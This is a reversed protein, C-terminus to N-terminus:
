HGFIWLWRKCFAFPVTLSVSRNNKCAFRLREHFKSTGSENEEHSEYKESNAQWERGRFNDTQKLWKCQCRNRLMMKHWCCCPYLFLGPLTILVANNESRQTKHSEGEFLCRRRLQWRTDENAAANACWGDQKGSLLGHYTTTGVGKEDGQKAANAAKPVMHYSCPVRHTQRFSCPVCTLPFSPTTLLFDAAHTTGTIGTFRRHYCFLHM